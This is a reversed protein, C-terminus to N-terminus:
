GICDCLRVRYGDSKTPLLFPGSTERAPFGCCPKCTSSVYLSIYTLGAQREPGGRAGSSRRQPRQVLHAANVSKPQSEQILLACDDCSSCGGRSAGCSLGVSLAKGVRHWYGTLATSHRYATTFYSWCRPFVDWRLKTMHLSRVARGWM